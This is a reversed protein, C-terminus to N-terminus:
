YNILNNLIEIIEIESQPIVGRRSQYRHHYEERIWVKGCTELEIM